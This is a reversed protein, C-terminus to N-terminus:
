GVDGSSPLRESEEPRWWARPLVLVLAVAAFQTAACLLYPLSPLRLRVGALYFRRHRRCADLASACSSPRDPM